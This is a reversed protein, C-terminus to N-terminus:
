APLGASKTGTPSVAPSASPPACETSGLSGALSGLAYRLCGGGPRWSSFRAKIRLLNAFDPLVCSVRDEGAGARLQSCRRRGAGCPTWVPPVLCFPGQNLVPWISPVQAAGPDPWSPRGSGGCRSAPPPPARARLGRPFLSSGPHPRAEQTDPSLDAPPPGQGAVQPPAVEARCAPYPLLPLPAPAQPFPHAPHRPRRPRQSVKPEPASTCVSSHPEPQHVACSVGSQSQLSAPLGAQEGQILDKEATRRESVEGLM